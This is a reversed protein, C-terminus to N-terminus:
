PCKCAQNVCEAPAGGPCGPCSTPAGPLCCSLGDDKTGDCNNDLGDCVEPADPRAQANTDNCDGGITAAGQPKKCDCKAGSNTNGFGDGDMDQYWTVCGSAGTEDTAGDCDNDVGDCTETAGPSVNPDNDDCDGPAAFTDGDADGCVIAACAALQAPTLGDVFEPKIPIGLCSHPQGSLVTCEATCYGENPVTSPGYGATATHGPNSGPPLSAVAGTFSALGFGAYQNGNTVCAAGPRALVAPLSQALQCPCIVASPASAVCTIIMNINVSSATGQGSDSLTCDTNAPDATIVSDHPAGVEVLDKAWVIENNTAINLLQGGPTHVVVPDGPALGQATYGIQVAPKGVMVASLLSACAAFEAPSQLAADFAAYFPGAPSTAAKGPFALPFEQQATQGSTSITCGMPSSSTHMAIVVSSMTLEYNASTQSSSVQRGNPNSNWYQEAALIDATNWCPCTGAAVAQVSWVSFHDTEFTVVGNAVTIPGFSEWTDDQEDELFLLVVDTEAGAWPISVTVPSSFTKGHPTLAVGATAGGEVWDPPAAFGAAALDEVREVGIEVDEALVGAPIEVTVGEGEVTGGASGVTATAPGGGDEQQVEPGAAVEATGGADEQQVEPGAAVEATGVADEQQSDPGAAGPPAGGEEESCSSCALLLMAIYHRLVPSSPLQM